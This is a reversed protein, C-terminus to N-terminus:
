NGETTDDTHQYYARMWSRATDTPWRDWRTLDRLLVPWTIPVNAGSLHAILAPLDRVLGDSDQRALLALRNQATEARLVQARVARALSWGLNRWRDRDPDMQPEAPAAAAGLRPNPAQQAYMAATLIYARESERSATVPIRSLLHEYARYPRDLDVLASRIAARGQPTGCREAVHSMYSRFLELGDVKGPPSESPM